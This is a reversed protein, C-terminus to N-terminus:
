KTTTKYYHIRLKGEGVLNQLIEKSTFNRSLRDSKEIILNVPESITKTIKKIDAVMKDFNDRLRSKSATEAFTYESFVTFGNSTCYNTGLRHQAALSFGDKQVEDSVRNFIIAPNMSLLMKKSVTKMDIPHDVTYSKNNKM